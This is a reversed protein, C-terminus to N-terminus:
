WPHVLDVVFVVLYELFAAFSAFFMGYVFPEITRYYFDADAPPVVKWWAEAVPFLAYFCFFAIASVLLPCILLLRRLLNTFYKVIVLVLFATIATVILSLVIAFALGTFELEAPIPLFKAFRQDLVTLGPGALWGGAWAAAKQWHRRVLGYALQWFGAPAQAAGAVPPGGPPPPPPAAAPTPTTSM